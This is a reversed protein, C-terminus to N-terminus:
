VTYIQPISKQFRQPANGLNGTVKTIKLGIFNLQNQLQEEIEDEKCDDIIKDRFLRVAGSDPM